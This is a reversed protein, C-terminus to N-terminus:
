AKRNRPLLCLDLHPPPRTVTDFATSPTFSAAAEHLSQLTLNTSERYRTCILTYRIVLPDYGKQTLDGITFFNGRSKSM